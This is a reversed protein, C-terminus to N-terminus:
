ESLEEGDDNRGMIANCIPYSNDKIYNDYIKQLEEKHVRRSLRQSVQNDCSILGEILIGNEPIQKTLTLHMTLPMVEQEIGLIFHSKAVFAVKMGSINNTYFSFDNLSNKNVEIGLGLGGISLYGNVNKGVNEGRNHVMFNFVIKITGNETIEIPPTGWAFFVDPQPEQGFLSKLFTHPAPQSSSGARIYYKFDDNLAQFPRKNSKPIHTVVYGSDNDKDEFIVKNIVNPHPPSTMLSSFSELLGVFNSVNKIPSKGVAYDEDSPGTKVGWVIVGGESNGFGSIGKSYNKKESNALKTRGSYDPIETTKFELYYNEVTKNLILGGLM